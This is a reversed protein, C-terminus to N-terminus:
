QNDIKYVMVAKSKINGKTRVDIEMKCMPFSLRRLTLYRPWPWMALLELTDAGLAMNRAGHRCMAEQDAIDM